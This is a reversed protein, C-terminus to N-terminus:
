PGQSLGRYVYLCLYDAWCGVLLDGNASSSGSAWHPHCNEAGSSSLFQIYNPEKSSAPSPEACGLGTTPPPPVVPFPSPCPTGLAVPSQLQGTLIDTERDRM